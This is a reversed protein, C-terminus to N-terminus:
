LFTHKPSPPPFLCVAKCVQFSDRLSSELTKKDNGINLVQAQLEALGAQLSNRELTIAQIIAERQVREEHTAADRSTLEERIGLVQNELAIAEATNKEVKKKLLNREQFRSM